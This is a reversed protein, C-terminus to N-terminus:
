TTKVYVYYEKDHVKVQRLPDTGEENINENILKLIYGLALVCHVILDNNRILLMATILKKLSLITDIEIFIYLVHLLEESKKDKKRKNIAIM